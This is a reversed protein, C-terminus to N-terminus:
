REQRRSSSPLRALKRLLTEFQRNSVRDDLPFGKHLSGGLARLRERHSSM